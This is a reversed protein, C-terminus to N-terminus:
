NRTSQAKQTCSKSSDFVSVADTLEVVDGYRSDIDVLSQAHARQDRDGVASRPVLPRYGHQLADVVSARVCGSTSAGCVVLGDCGSDALIDNLPTDFFASAFLKTLVTEDHRPRLRSDIETLDSGSRLGRLAPVKELFVTATAIDAESYAVTTFVVLFAKARAAELLQAIADVPGELDCALASSPDTFARSMDVVLLAPRSLHQGIRGWFAKNGASV